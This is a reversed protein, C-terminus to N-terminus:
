VRWGSGITIGRVDRGEEAFTSPSVCGDFLTDAVGVPSAAVDLRRGGRGGMM